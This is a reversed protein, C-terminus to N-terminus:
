KTLECHMKHFMKNRVLHETTTSVSSHSDESTGDSKYVNSDDGGAAAGKSKTWGVM